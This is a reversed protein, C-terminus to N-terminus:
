LMAPQPMGMMSHNVPHMGPIMQPQMHKQAQTMGGMPNKKGQM